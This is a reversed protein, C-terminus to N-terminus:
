VNSKEKLLIEQYKSIIIPKLYGLDYKDFWDLSYDPTYTITNDFVYSIEDLNHYLALALRHAGEFLMGDINLSIPYENMYGNEEVSKILEKFRKGNDDRYSPIMPNNRVRTSQMVSYHEFGNNEKGYYNEIAIYRIIVDSINMNNRMSTKLIEFPSIMKM